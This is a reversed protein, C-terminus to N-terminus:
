WKEKLLEDMYAFLEASAREMEEFNELITKANQTCLEPNHEEVFRLNKNAFQHVKKHPEQM